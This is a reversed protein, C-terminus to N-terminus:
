DEQGERKDEDRRREMGCGTVPRFARISDDGHFLNFGIKIVIFRRM